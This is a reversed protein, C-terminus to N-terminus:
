TCLYAKLIDKTYKSHSRPKNRNLYRVKYGHFRGIRLSASTREWTKGHEFAHKRVILVSSLSLVDILYAAPFALARLGEQRLLFM